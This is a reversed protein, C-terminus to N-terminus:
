FPFLLDRTQAGAVNLLRWSIGSRVCIGGVALVSLRRQGISAMIDKWFRM